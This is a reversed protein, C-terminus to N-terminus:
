DTRCLRWGSRPRDSMTYWVILGYYAGNPPGSTGSYFRGGIMLADNRDTDFAIVRLPITGNMEVKCHDRIGYNSPHNLSQICNGDMECGSGRTIAWSGPTPAPPAPTPPMNESGGVWLFLNKDSRADGM